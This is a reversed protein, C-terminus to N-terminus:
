TSVGRIFREVRGALEDGRVQMMAREWFAGAMPNNERCFIKHEGYYVFRAYHVNYRVRGRGDQVSEEASALLRGTDYPVFDRMLESAAGAAYRLTRENVGASRIIQEVPRNFRFRM